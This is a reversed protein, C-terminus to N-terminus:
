SMPLKYFFNVERRLVTNTTFCDENFMVRNKELCQGIGLALIWAQMHVPSERIKGCNCIKHDGKCLWCTYKTKVHIQKNGLSDKDTSTYNTNFNSIETGLCIELKILNINEENFNKATFKKYFYMRLYKPLRLVVKTVNDTSKLSSAYGMSNLWTVAGKLVQHFHRLGNNDDPSISPLELINEPKLHSVTYPNVFESKIAKMASAYFIGNRGIVCIVRKADGDLLKILQDMRINDNCSSKFYLGKLVSFLSQGSAHTEM